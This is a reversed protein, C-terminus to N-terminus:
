LKENSTELTARTAEGIDTTRVGCGWDKELGVLWVKCACHV